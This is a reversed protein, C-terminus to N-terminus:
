KKSKLNLLDCIYIRRHNGNNKDIKSIIFGANQLSSIYQSITSKSVNLLEAFYSNSTTCHGESNCENLLDSYFLKENANLQKSYRVISPIVIYFGKSFNM